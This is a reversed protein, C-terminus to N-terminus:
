LVVTFCYYLPYFNLFLLNTGSVSQYGWLPSNELYEQDRLAAESYIEPDNMTTDRYSLSWDEDAPSSRSAVQEDFYSRDMGYLNSLDNLIDAYSQGLAPLTPCLLGISALFLLAVM